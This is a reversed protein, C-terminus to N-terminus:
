GAEVCFSAIPMKGSKAPVVMDYAIIRDQKGGRVIDGALVFVEETASLNEIALERVAQTEHVVVKKQQLAESLTLFNKGKLQNEGHILYVTLNEHSYPGSLKYHSPPAAAKAPAATQQSPPQDAGLVLAAGLMLAIPVTSRPRMSMAMAQEERYSNSPALKRRWVVTPYMRQRGGTENM